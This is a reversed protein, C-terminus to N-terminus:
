RDDGVVRRLAALRSDWEAGVETMWNVAEAMPEPTLRYRKHRGSREGTVLGAGGLAVLHKVIAQRTVPLEGALETASAGGRASLREVVLRRTPDSLAAFTLDIPNM